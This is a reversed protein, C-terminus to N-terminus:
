SADGFLLATGFPRVDLRVKLEFLHKFGVGKGASFHVAGLRAAMEVAFERSRKQIFEAAMGAACISITTSHKRRKLDTRTRTVPDLM